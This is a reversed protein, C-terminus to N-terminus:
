QANDTAGILQEIDNMEIRLDSISLWNRDWRISWEGRDSLAVFCNDFSFQIDNKNFDSEEDYINFYHRCASHQKETLLYFSYDGDMDRYCYPLFGDMKNEPKLLHLYEDSHLEKPM